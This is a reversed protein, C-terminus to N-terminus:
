SERKYGFEAANFATVDFPASTDPDVYIISDIYASSSPVSVGTGEGDDSASRALGKMLAAGGDDTVCYMTCAVADISTVAASVDGDLTFTDKLGASGLENYDTESAPVEDVTDDRTGTSPTSQKYYGEALPMFCQVRRNGLFDNCYSGATDLIIIHTMGCRGNGLFRISSAAANTGFLTDIGTEHFVEVTDIKCWVYGDPSNALKFKFEIQQWTDSLLGISATAVLTGTANYLTLVGAIARMYLQTVGEALVTFIYANDGVYNNLFRLMIILEDQTGGINAYCVGQYSNYIWKDGFPGGATEVTLYTGGSIGYKKGARLATTDYYNVGDIWRVAM